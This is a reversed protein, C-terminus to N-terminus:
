AGSSDLFMPHGLGALKAPNMLRYVGVIGEGDLHLVTAFLLRGSTLTLVAPDGNLWALEYEPMSLGARELHLRTAREFGVLLQAIREAGRQAEAVAPVRGGGDAVLIADATMLALLGERDEARLADVFRRTVRERAVPSAGVPAQDRRVREKARHVIQRCAAESKGLVRAIEAYDAEFVERLLLAAREEPGLRELMLLFAISLDDALDAAQDPPPATVPEPLWQGRYAARETAARRLRDIAIRTTVSVLWAQDSRPAEDAQGWRLFAEQVVDEADAVIGLMRYALGFLRPRISEFVETKQDMTLHVHPPRTQSVLRRMLMTAGM